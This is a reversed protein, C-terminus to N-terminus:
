RELHYLPDTITVRNRMGSSVFISHNKDIIIADIGALQEILQLGAERGLIFVSTSLADADISHTTVITVSLVDTEAPYGTGPDIIHHYIKGEVDLFREYAGSTVLTEDTAEVVAV